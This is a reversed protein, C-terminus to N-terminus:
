GRFRTLNTIVTLVVQDVVFVYLTIVVSMLLILVTLSIVERRTPWTVRAVEGRVGTLYNRIREFM